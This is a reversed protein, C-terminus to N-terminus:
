GCCGGKSKIRFIKFRNLKEKSVKCTNKPAGSDLSAGTVCSKTFRKCEECSSDAIAEAVIRDSVMVEMVAALIFDM